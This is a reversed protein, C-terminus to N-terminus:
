LGRATLGAKECMAPLTKPTFYNLHDPFRFGSWRRGLLMRNVCGYNPVKIIAVGYPKLVRSTQELVGMPDAEHELFSRMFIGAAFDDPFERLGDIASNVVIKGGRDEVADVAHSAEAESIEIGFPTYAIPLKRLQDGKGCGIDLVNGESVHQQLVEEVRKRKFLHLRWRMSKSIKYLLPYYQKREQDRNASSKDWSYDAVLEEYIPVAELYVFRCRPCDKMIWLPDSYRNRSALVASEGCLPCDRRIAKRGNMEITEM